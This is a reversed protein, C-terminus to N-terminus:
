WSDHVHVNAVRPKWLKVIKNIYNILLYSGWLHNSNICSDIIPSGQMACSPLCVTWTCSGDVELKWTKQAM